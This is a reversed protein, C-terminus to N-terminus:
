RQRLANLAERPDVPNGDLLFQVRQELVARVREALPVASFEDVTLRRAGDATTLVVQNFPLGM